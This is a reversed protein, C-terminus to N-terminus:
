PWSLCHIHPHAHSLGSRGRPVPVEPLTSHEPHQMLLQAQAPCMCVRKNTENPAHSSPNSLNEARSKKSKFPGKDSLVLFSSVFQNGERGSSCFSFLVGTVQLCELLCTCNTLLYNLRVYDSYPLCIVETWLHVLAPSAQKPFSRPLPPLSPLFQKTLVAYRTRWLCFYLKPRRRCGKELSPHRPLYRPM